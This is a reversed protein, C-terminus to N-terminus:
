IIKEKSMEFTKEHVTVKQSSNDTQLDNLVNHEPEKTGPKKTPEFSSFKKEEEEEPEALSQITLDHDKIVDGVM